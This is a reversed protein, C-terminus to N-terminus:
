FEQEGSYWRSQDQLSELLLCCNLLGKTHENRFNPYLDLRLTNNHTFCFPPRPPSGVGTIVRCWWCANIALETFARTAQGLWMLRDANSSCGHHTRIGSLYSLTGSPHLMHTSLRPPSCSLSAWPGRKLFSSGPLTQRDPGAPPPHSKSCSHQYEQLARPSETSPSPVAQCPPMSSLQYVM